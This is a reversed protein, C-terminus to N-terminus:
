APKGKKVMGLLVRYPGPTGPPVVAVRDKHHLVTDMTQVAGNVFVAEVEEAKLDMAAMLDAVTAGEAVEIPANAFPLGQAKLKEQLFSFANFFITAV